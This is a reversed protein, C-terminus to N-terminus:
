LDLRDKLTDGRLAQRVSELSLVDGPQVNGLNVNPGVKKVWYLQQSPIPAEWMVPSGDGVRRLIEDVFASRPKGDGDYAGVSRGSDRGEVIVIRAGWELDREVSRVVEAARMTASPDKKGIETLVFLGHGVGLRILRRREEPTLEITGESVELATFGWEATRAVLRESLGQHHAIEMLTGGPCVDVDFSRILRIKEALVSEPYLVSSGFALKVFDIYPACVELLDATERLGLGKDIVM